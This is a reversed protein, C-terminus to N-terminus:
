PQIQYIKAEDVKHEYNKLLQDAKTKGIDENCFWRRAAAAKEPTDYKEKERSLFLQINDFTPSYFVRYRQGIKYHGSFDFKNADLMPLNIERGDDMRLQVAKVLGQDKPVNVMKIMRKSTRAADLATDAALSAISASAISLVGGQVALSAIEGTGGGGNFQGEYQRDYTPTQNVNRLSLVTGCGIQNGAKIFRQSGSDHGYAYVVEGSYGIGISSCGYFTLVTPISLGVLIRKHNSIANSFVIKSIQLFKKMM